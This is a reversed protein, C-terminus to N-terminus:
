IGFFYLSTAANGSDLTVNNRFYASYKSALVLTDFSCFSYRLEHFQIDFWWAKKLITVSVKAFHQRPPSNKFMHYSVHDDSLDKLYRIQWHKTM